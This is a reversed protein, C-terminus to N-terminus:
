KQNRIVALTILLFCIEIINTISSFGLGVNCKECSIDDDYIKEQCNDCNYAPNNITFALISALLLIMNICTLVTNVMKTHKKYIEVTPQILILAINIGIILLVAIHLGLWIYGRTILKCYDNYGVDNCYEVYNYEDSAGVNPDIIM